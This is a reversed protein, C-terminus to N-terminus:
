NLNDKLLVVITEKGKDILLYVLYHVLKNFKFSYVCFKRSRKFYFGVDGGISKIINWDVTKLFLRM